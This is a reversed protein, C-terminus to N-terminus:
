FLKKQGIEQTKDFGKKIEDIARHMRKEKHHSAYYYAEDRTNKTILIKLKGPALRATRGRRQISRIASPIPEYFIVESVEPIDLGEEAISTALLINIKGERFDEIMQKQEKQKLGTTKGKSNKKQAQGVFIGPMIKPNKELEECIKTLTERFQAFLIIRSNPKEEIQRGILEKLKELKPHENRLTTALTFARQFRPDKTIIQVGKSQKEESKKYLDKMYEITANATQTEILEIAHAIKLAQACLSMGYMKNGNRSRRVENALKTQLKLLTLKNSFGFLLKRDKLQGVKDNYIGDLLVKIQMFEGPFDVFIKEFELEQLYPKVDPSERTRVEVSEVNMNECIQKITKKDGGPSATLALIQHESNQFKYKQAVYNYAYNKVCRHAEDVVLLSVEKLDYLGKKLDNSVCQPTSFIFEATQWIKKRQPAQTKGTFLQADMWGEPLKDQFDKFHQEILPRTPALILIKELPKQKFKYIATMIAILTKGTGTPLVVLTNKDKAVKFIEEQYKRPTISLEQM